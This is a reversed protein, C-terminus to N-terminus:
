LNWKKLNWVVEYNEFGENDKTMKKLSTSAEKEMKGEKEKGGEKEEGKKGKEANEEENEGSNSTPSVTTPKCCRCWGCM